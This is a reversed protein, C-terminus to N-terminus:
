ASEGSLTYFALRTGKVRVTYHRASPTGWLRQSRWLYVRFDTFNKVVAEGLTERYRAKLVETFWAEYVEHKLPCIREPRDLFPAFFMKARRAKRYAQVRLWANLSHKWRDSDLEKDPNRAIALRFQLETLFQQSWELKTLDESLRAAVMQVKVNRFVEQATLSDSVLPTKQVIGPLPLMMHRAPHDRRKPM